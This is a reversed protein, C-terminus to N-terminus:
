VLMPILCPFDVEALGIKERLAIARDIATEIEWSRYHRLQAHCNEIRSHIARKGPHLFHKAIKSTICDESHGRGNFRRWWRSTQKLNNSSSMKMAAIHSRHIAMALLALLTFLCLIGVAYSARVQFSM